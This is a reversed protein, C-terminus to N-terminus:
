LQVHRSVVLTTTNSNSAHQCGAWQSLSLPQRGQAAGVQPFSPQLGFFAPETDFALTRRGHRWRRAQGRHQIRLNEWNGFDQVSVVTCVTHM